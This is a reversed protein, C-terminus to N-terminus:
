PGNLCASLAEPTPLAARQTDCSAQANPGLTDAVLGYGSSGWGKNTVAKDGTMFTLGVNGREDVLCVSNISLSPVEALSQECVKPWVRKVGNVCVTKDACNPGDRQVLACQVAGLCAVEGPTQVCPNILFHCGDAQYTKCLGAEIATRAADIEMADIKSVAYRSCSDNCVSGTSVEVCDSDIRCRRIAQDSVAELQQHALQERQECSLSPGSSSTVAAAGPVVYVTGSSREGDAVVRVQFTDLTSGNVPVDFSGDAAVSGRTVTGTLASTIEVTAGGPSAAGPAGTVRVQDATIVLAVLAEKLAPMALPPNGTETGGDAHLETCASSALALLLVGASWALPWRVRGQERRVWKSNLMTM